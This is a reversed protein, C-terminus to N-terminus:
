SMTRQEVNEMFGNQNPKWFNKSKLYEIICNNLITCFIMCMSHVVAIGRYDITNCSM